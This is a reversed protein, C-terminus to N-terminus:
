KKLTKKKPKEDEKKAKTEKKKMPKKTKKDDKEDKKEVKGKDEKKKNTETAIDAHDVNKLANITALAVNLKNTSRSLIKGTLDKYGALSCVARVAGGAIIGGGERGPKLFVESGSQRGIVDYPITGKSTIPANIVNKEANRAAKGISIAVDAGKGIGVGVRGKKDGVVVVTRFSFRRGGSVVRAVRAIDLVKQDFESTKAQRDQQKNKTRQNM